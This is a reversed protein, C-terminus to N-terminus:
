RLSQHEDNCCCRDKLLGCGGCYAGGPGTGPGSVAGGSVADGDDAKGSKLSDVVIWIIFAVPLVVTCFWAWFNM